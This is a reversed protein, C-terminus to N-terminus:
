YDNDDDYCGSYGAAGYRKSTPEPLGLVRLEFADSESAEAHSLGSEVDTKHNAAIQALNEQLTMAKMRKSLQHM